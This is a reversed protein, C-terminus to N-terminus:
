DLPLAPPNIVLKREGYSQVLATGSLPNSQEFAMKFARNYDQGSAVVDEFSPLQIAEEPAEKAQYASGRLNKIDSISEGAALRRALESIATEAMGFLLMDAKSDVLVSRRVKNDWYDYHALRRLSAELGGIITPLGKFAGKVAATYAIVARNPRAGSQGGPTYADDNRVKKAATYHNVMSDMAGASIAAFLRPQGMVKFGEVNRWDPQALIGVRLGEDELLRALLSTGFSPHDIYADGTVFLVDLQDWGREIM